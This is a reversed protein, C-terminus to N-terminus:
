RAHRTEKTPDMKNEFWPAQAFVIADVQGVLELFRREGDDQRAFRERKWTGQTQHWLTWLDVSVPRSM